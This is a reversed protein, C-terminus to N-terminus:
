KCGFKAEVHWAHAWLAEWHALLLLQWDHLKPSRPMILELLTPMDVLKYVVAAKSFWVEVLKPSALLLDKVLKKCKMALAMLVLRTSDAVEVFLVSGVRVKSCEQFSLGFSDYLSGLSDLPIRLFSILTM